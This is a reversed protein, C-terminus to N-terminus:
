HKLGERRKREKEVMGDFRRFATYGELFNTGLWLLGVRSLPSIGHKALRTKAFWWGETFHIALVPVFIAKTFWLFNEAGYPWVVDWFRYLTTGPQVLGLGITAMCIFYFLVGSYVVLDFGAPPLFTIKIDSIGLRSQATRSMDVLKDRSGKLSALPPTIAVKHVGSISKITMADLTMDLLQPQAAAAASLGNFAQLYQELDTVHDKNMHTIIRIKIAAEPGLDNNTTDTM